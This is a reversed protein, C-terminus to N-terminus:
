IKWLIIEGSYNDFHSKVNNKDKWADVGKKILPDGYNRYGIVGGRTLLPWWNMLDTYAVKEDHAQDFYVADAKMGRSHFIRAAEDSKMKYFELRNRFGASLLRGQCYGETYGENDEWPDVLFLKDIASNYQLLAHAHAGASVGVEVVVRHRVDLVTDFFTSRTAYDTTKM